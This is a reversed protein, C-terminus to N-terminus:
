HGSHDMAVAICKLASLNIFWKGLSDLFGTGWGKVDSTTYLWVTPLVNRSRGSEETREHVYKWIGTQGKGSSCMDHNLANGNCISLNVYVNCYPLKYKNLRLSQFAPREGGTSPNM